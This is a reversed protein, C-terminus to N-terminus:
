IIGKTFQKRSFIQALFNTIFSFSESGKFRVILRRKHRFRVRNVYSFFKKSKKTSFSQWVAYFPQVVEEYDSTSCGFKPIAEFEAESDLYEIEESALQEFM